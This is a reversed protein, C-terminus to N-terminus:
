ESVQPTAASPTFFKEGGEENGFSFVLNSGGGVVRDEKDEKEEIDQVEIGEIVDEGGGDGSGSLTVPPAQAPSTSSQERGSGSWAQKADSAQSTTDCSPHPYHLHERDSPAGEGAKTTTSRDTQTDTESKVIVWSESPPVEVSAKKPLTEDKDVVVKCTRQAGKAKQLTITEGVPAFPKQEPKNDTVTIPIPSPLPGELKSFVIRTEGAPFLILANYFILGPERTIISNRNCLCM